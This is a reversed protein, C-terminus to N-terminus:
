TRTRKNMLYTLSLYAPTGYAGIVIGFPDLKLSMTASLPLLSTPSWILLFIMPGSAVAFLSESMGSKLSAVFSPVPFSM